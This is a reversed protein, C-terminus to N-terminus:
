DNNKGDIIQKRPYFLSLPYKRLRALVARYIQNRQPTEIRRARIAVLMSMAFAVSVNLFGCFVIGVIALWFDWTSLSKIGL